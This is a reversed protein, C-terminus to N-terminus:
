DDIWFHPTTKTATTTNYVFAILDPAGRGLVRAVLRCVPM